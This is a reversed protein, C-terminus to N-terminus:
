NYFIIFNIFIRKADRAARGLGFGFKNEEEGVGKVEKGDIM